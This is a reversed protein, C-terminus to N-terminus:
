DIYVVITQSVTRDGARCCQFCKCFLYMSTLVPYLSTYVKLSSTHAELPLDSLISWDGANAECGFLREGLEDLDM